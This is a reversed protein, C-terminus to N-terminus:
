SWGDVGSVRAGLARLRASLGALAVGESGLRRLEVRGQVGLAAVLTCIAPVEGRPCDVDQGTWDTPGEVILRYPDLIEIAEGLSQLNMLFRIRGEEMWGNPSLWDHLVTRGAAYGAMIVFLPMSTAALGRHPLPHLRDTVAELMRDAQVELDVLKTVGNSAPYEASVGFEVGMERLNELEIDVYDIPVRLISLNSRTAVAAAVLTMADFPDEACSYSVTTDLREVGHVTISPTGFGAISVGAESLFACVEGVSYATPVNLITTPRPYQAAAVIAAVAVFEDGDILTFTNRPSGTGGREPHRNFSTRIEGNAVDMSGGSCLRLVRSIGTVRDSVEKARGGFPIVVATRTKAFLIPILATTWTQRASADAFGDIALLEDRSIVLESDDVSWECRVGISALTGIFLDVEPTRGVGRLRSSGKNLAAALVLPVSAGGTSQAAVSGALRCGGDVTLVQRTLRNMLAQIGRPLYKVHDRMSHLLRQALTSETDLATTVLSWAQPVISVALEAAEISTGASRSSRTSELVQEYARSLRSVARAKTPEDVTALTQVKLPNLMSYATRLDGHIQRVSAEILGNHLLVGVPDAGDARLSPYVDLTLSMMSALLSDPVRALAAMVEMCAPDRRVRDTALRYAIALSRHRLDAEDMRFDGAEERWARLVEPVTQWRERQGSILVLSLPHCDTETVLERLAPRQAVPIDAQWRREFLTEADDVRLPGVHFHTVSPSRVTVQTSYIIRWATRDVLDTLWRTFTPDAQPDEMNDLYLVTPESSARMLDELETQLVADSDVWAPDGRGGLDKENPVHRAAALIANVAAVRTSVQSLTVDIVRWGAGRARTLVERCVTSKGNGPGGQLEIAQRSGAGTVKRWVDQVLTDRGVCELSTSRPAPLATGAIPPHPPADLASDRLYELVTRVLDHRKNPYWIARVGAESLRRGTMALEDPAGPMPLLAFHPLDNQTAIRSLLAMTRDGVLSCGLFLVPHAQFLLSLFAANPSDNDPSYYQDYQKSTFVIERPRTACGHMKLLVRRAGRVLDQRDQTFHVPGRIVHDGFDHPGSYVARELLCDFNLTLVPGDSFVEPLIAVAAGRVAEPTAAAPSFVQRVTDDFASNGSADFLATAAEDCLGRDILSHISTAADAPIHPILSSMLKLSAGWLPYVPSSMGAGICPVVNGKYRRHENLLEGLVRENAGPLGSKGPTVAFLEELSGSPM